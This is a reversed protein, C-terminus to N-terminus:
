MRGGKFSNRGRFECVYKDSVHMHLRVFSWSRTTYSLGGLTVIVSLGIPQRSMWTLFSM